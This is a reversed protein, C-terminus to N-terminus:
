SLGAAARNRLVEQILEILEPASENALLKAIDQNLCPMTNYELAAIAFFRIGEDDSEALHLLPEAILPSATELAIQSCWYQVDKSGNTLADVLHPLVEKEPFRWIVGAILQFVGHGDGDNFVRLFLPICRRDPHDLFHSLVCDLQSILEDPCSDAPPLPQNARLFSLADDTTM